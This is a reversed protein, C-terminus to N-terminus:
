VFGVVKRSRKKTVQTDPTLTILDADDKHSIYRKLHVIQEQQIDVVKMLENHRAHFSKRLNDFKEDCKKIERILISFDDNKEFLSLQIPYAM